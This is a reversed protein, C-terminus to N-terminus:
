LYTATKMAEPWLEEEIQADFLMSCAINQLTQIPGESVGNQHQTYPATPEWIIGSRRLDEQMEANNFESGGDSRLRAIRYSMSANM